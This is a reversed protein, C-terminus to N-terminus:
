ENEETPVDGEITVDGDPLEDAHNHNQGDCLYGDGEECATHRGSDDCAYHGCDLRYHDGGDSAHHLGCAAPTHDKGDCLYGGCIACRAHADENGYVACGRHGCKLATHDGESKDCWPKACVACPTHSGSTSCAYSRGCTECRHIPDGMCLTHNDACFQSIEVDHRSSGDDIEGCNACIEGSAGTSESTWIRVDCDSRVFPRDTGTLIAFTDLGELQAVAVGNLTITTVKGALGPEFCLNAASGELTLSPKLLSLAKWLAEYQGSYDETGAGFADFVDAGSGTGALVLTDQDAQKLCILLYGEATEVPTGATDALAFGTAAIMLALIIGILKKM